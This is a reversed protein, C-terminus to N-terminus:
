AAQGEQDVGARTAVYEIHENLLALSDGRNGTLREVNGLATLAVDLQERIVKEVDAYYGKRPNAGTYGIIADVSEGFEEGVKILRHLDGLERALDDRTMRAFRGRNATDFHESLASLQAAAKQQASM